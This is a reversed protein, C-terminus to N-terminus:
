SQSLFITNINEATGNGVATTLGQIIRGIDYAPLAIYGGGIVLDMEKRWAPLILDELRPVLGVDKLQVADPHGRDDAIVQAKTFPHTHGSQGSRLHEENRRGPGIWAQSVPLHQILGPSYFILKKDNGDVAGAHGPLQLKAAAGTDDIRPAFDEIFGAIRLFDKRCLHIEGHNLIYAAMDVHEPVTTWLQVM